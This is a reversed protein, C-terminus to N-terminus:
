NVIDNINKGYLSKIFQINKMVLLHYDDPVVEM